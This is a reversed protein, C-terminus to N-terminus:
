QSSERDPTRPPPVREADADLIVTGTSRTASVSGDVLNYELQETNLTRLGDTYSTNGTFRVDATSSDYDIADAVGDIRRKAKDPQHSFKAQSGKVAVSLLQEGRFMMRASDADLIAGRFEIHVKGSLDLQNLGGATETFNSTSATVRTDRGHRLVVNDLSFSGDRKLLLNDGDEIQLNGSLAAAAM